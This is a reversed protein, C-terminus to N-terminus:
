TRFIAKYELYFIDSNKGFIGICGVTPLALGEVIWKTFISSSDGQEMTSNNDMDLEKRNLPHCAV